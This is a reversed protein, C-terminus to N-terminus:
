IFSELDKSTGIEGDFVVVRINDDGLCFSTSDVVTAPYLVTTSPYMVYVSFGKRYRYMWENGEISTRPLPLVYKREIMKVKSIDTPNFDAVDQLAM